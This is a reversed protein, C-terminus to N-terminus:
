HIATNLRNRITKLVAEVIKNGLKRKTEEDNILIEDVSAVDVTFVLNGIKIKYTLFKPNSKNKFCVFKVTELIENDTFSKLEEINNIDEVRM